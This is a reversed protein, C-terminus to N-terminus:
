IDIELGFVWKGAQWNYGAQVGGIVGGPQLNFREPIFFPVVLQLPDNLTTQNRALGYGINGGVYFGTWSYPVVPAAKYVPAKVPLDAAQALGGILLVAPGIASLFLKKM